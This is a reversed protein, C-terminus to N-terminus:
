DVQKWSDIPVGFRREASHKAMELTEVHYNDQHGECGGEPNNIDSEFMDMEEYVYLYFGKHGDDDIIFGM